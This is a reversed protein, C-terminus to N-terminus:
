LVDSVHVKPHKALTEPCNENRTLVQVTKIEADMYKADDQQFNSSTRMTCYKKVDISYWPCQCLEKNHYMKTGLVDLLGCSLSELSHDM